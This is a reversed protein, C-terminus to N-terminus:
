LLVYIIVGCLQCSAAHYIMRTYPMNLCLHFTEPFTNLHIHNRMINLKNKLGRYDYTVYKDNLYEMAGRSQM